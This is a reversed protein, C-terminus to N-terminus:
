ERHHANLQILPTPDEVKILDALTREELLKDIASRLDQWV